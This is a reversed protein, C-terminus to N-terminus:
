PTGSPPAQAPSGGSRDRIGEHHFVYEALVTTTGSGSSPRLTLRMPMRPTERIASAPLALLLETTGASVPVDSARGWEEGSDLRLDADVSTVGSFDGRLRAVVVDDDAWVTCRVSEGPGLAYSRVRVGDRALRNLVADDVFAQVAGARAAAGIGHRIREAEALLRACRECEFVHTEIRDSDDSAVDVTWYDALEGFSPCPTRAASM